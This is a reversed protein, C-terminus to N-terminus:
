PQEVALRFFRPPSAEAADTVIVQVPSSGSEVVAHAGSAVTAAGAVSSAIDTWSGPLLSDSVQVVYTLDTNAPDRSFHFTARGQGDDELTPLVAVSDHSLPDGALAYELLNVLGDQDPDADNAANDVDASSGFHTVRWHELLSLNKAAVAFTFVSENADDNPISVTAGYNGIPLAAPFTVTFTTSAGAALTSVPPQSITFDTGTISLEGLQLPARGQNHIRYSRAQVPSAAAFEGFDTHNAASTQVAQYALPRDNGTLAIEVMNLGGQLSVNISVQPTDPDNSSLLLRGFYADFPLGAGPGSHTPDFGLNIDSEGGAAIQGQGPSVLLWGEEMPPLIRVAGEDEVGNRESSSNAAVILGRNLEDNQLGVLYTATTPVSKYHILIEGSSKLVLQCSLREDDPQPDPNYQYVGEFQIIMTDPDLLLHYVRGQKDAALSSRLDLDDWYFAIMNPPAGLNPLYGANLPANTWSGFTIFGETSLILHSYDAGFYPFSFGIPISGSSGNDTPAGTGTWSTVETGITAIDIWQYVPGDADNTSRFDYESAITFDLAGLGHNQINLGDSSSGGVALVQSFSTASVQVEPTNPEGIGAIAFTFVSEDPDNCLIQVTAERLGVGLPSFLLTFTSSAGPALPPNAPQASVSFDGAHTGSLTIRPSGSLSLNALGDNRITFTRSASHLSVEGAPFLSHHSLRPQQSAPAIPEGNGFVSIEAGSVVAPTANIFVGQSANLYTGSASTELKVARVMYTYTEGPVASLDDFSTSSVLAGNIRSFKGTIRADDAGRYVAYGEISSDASATWSLSVVGPASAQSLASAPLVPFLRLTPDGMLAVHVQGAGGGAPYDGFNNQSRRAGHGLPEGVAMAHIHWHPRGTWMSALGLGAETAALPARLFNNSSDWDGFYSGLMMHFVAKSDTSGFQASNGIGAASTYSGAGGGYAWLYADNELTTFWDAETINASGFFATFNWWPNSAFTDNGRYGWHDDILGRRPVSAYAGLRHRYSHDRILYRRLLDMETTSADPFVTMNSLDVRGVELELASPLISQDYKGDGPVNDNRTGSAATDDVESDTWVGDMDGYFADAPWAGIHNAHGDPAILGAYPVAIRGLLFVSRVDPTLPNSYHGTIVAKVDPVTDSAAIEEFIVHWGDGALDQRLRALEVPLSAVVDEHVLLVVSGWRDVETLRIGTEIYGTSNSPGNSMLRVLRYEYRQGPQVATDTFSMASTSLSAYEGGWAQNAHGVGAPRRYIKQHTVLYASSTPPLWNLTIQAPSEQVTATVPITKDQNSVADVRSIGATVVLGFCM